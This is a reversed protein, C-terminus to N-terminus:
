FIALDCVLCTNHCRKGSDIFQKRVAAFDNEAGMKSFYLIAGIFPLRQRRNCLSQRLFEALFHIKYSIIVHGTLSRRLCHFLHFFPINDQKLISTEAACLLCLVSLSEGFLQSIQCVDIYTIRKTRRVPCM